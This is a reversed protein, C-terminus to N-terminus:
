STTREGECAVSTWEMPRAFNSKQIGEDASIEADFPKKKDEVVEGM